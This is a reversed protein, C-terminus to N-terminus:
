EFKSITTVTQTDGEIARQAIHDVLAPAILKLWLEMKGRLTMVLERKRRAAAMM